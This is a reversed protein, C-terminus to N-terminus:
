GAEGFAKQYHMPSKGTILKFYKNFGSFQNFGSEYCVQAISLRGEILLKCAHQVRLELLFHSYSKRSRSKFYRCFSNPSMNAVKAIEDLSIKRRFHTISYAYIQNIRDTDADDFHNPYDVTSLLEIETSQALMSLAQILSIIRTTGIQSPCKEALMRALLRKTEEKTQGHLRIGQRSKELFQAILRNEPLQLFTDGWFNDRFHVVTAQAVLGEQNDFYVPECRWYHPLNSGILLVDGAQFNQINDGVFQTGRGKELHVLEIEPHYHWRNYFYPVVDQRISFSCESSLPVKLLQPRM